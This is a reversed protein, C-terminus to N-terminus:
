IKRTYNPAPFIIDNLPILKDSDIILDKDLCPKVLGESIWNLAIGFAEFPSVNITWDAVPVPLVKAKKIGNIM